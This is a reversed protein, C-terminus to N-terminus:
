PLRGAFSRVADHNALRLNILLANVQAQLATIESQLRSIQGLLSDSPPAALAPQPLVGSNAGILLVSLICAVTIRIM